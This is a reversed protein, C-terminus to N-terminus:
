HPNTLTGMRQGLRSAVSRSVAVALVLEVQIYRVLVKESFWGVTHVGGSVGKKSKSVGDLGLRSDCVEGVAFGGRSEECRRM